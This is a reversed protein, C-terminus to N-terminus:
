ILLVYHCHLTIGMWSWVKWWFYSFEEEALQGFYSFLCFNFLSQLSYSIILNNLFYCFHFLYPLCLSYVFSFILFYLEQISVELWNKFLRFYLTRVNYIYGKSQPNRRKYDLFGKSTWKGFPSGLNRINLCSSEQM